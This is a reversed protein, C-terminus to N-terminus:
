TSIFLNPDYDNFYDDQDDCELGGDLDVETPSPEKVVVSSADVAGGHM